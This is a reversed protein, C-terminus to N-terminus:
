SNFDFNNTGLPTFDSDAWLLGVNPDLQDHWVPISFGCGESNSSHSVFLDDQARLGFPDHSLDLLPPRDVSGYLPTQMELEMNVKPFPSLCDSLSAPDVEASTLSQLIHQQINVCGTRVNFAENGTDFSFESSNYHFVFDTPTKLSCKKSPLVSCSGSASDSNVAELQPFGKKRDQRSDIDTLSGLEQLTSSVQTDSNSSDQLNLQASPGYHLKAAEDYARAADEATAFTGLWLRSGRRPERIEAVWKGWTRQRVGRFPCQANQPGGKGKMCGKKSVKFAPQKRITKKLGVKEGRHAEQALGKICRGKKESEAECIPALNNSGQKELVVVSKFMDEQNTSREWPELGAAAVTSSGYLPGVAAWLGHLSESALGPDDAGFAPM